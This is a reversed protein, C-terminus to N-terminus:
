FLKAAARAQDAWRKQNALVPAHSCAFAHPCAFFRQGCIPLPKM